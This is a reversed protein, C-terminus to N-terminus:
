AGVLGRMVGFDGIVTSSDARTNVTQNFYYNTNTVRNQSGNNALPETLPNIAQRMAGAITPIQGLLGSALGEGIWSGRRQMVRSPSGIQLDRDVQEIMAMVLRNTAEIMEPISAGLGLTLGGLIDSVDLGAQNLSEILDLQKELFNLKQENQKLQLIDDQISRQEALAQNLREQAEAASLIQGEFNVTEEGSAILEKLTEVKQDLIEVNAQVIGGLRNGITLATRGAQYFIQQQMLRLDNASKHFGALFGSILGQIGKPGINGLFDFNVGARALSDIVRTFEATQDSAGLIQDRYQMFTDTLIRIALQARDDSVNMSELLRGLHKATRPMINELSVLGRQVHLLQDLVSQSINMHSLASGALNAAAAVDTLAVAMPPPSGPQLIPPLEFKKVLEALAKFFDTAKKIAAAVADMAKKFKPLVSEGLKNMIPSVNQGIVSAIADFAPKLIQALYNGVATLAPLLINKWIGALAQLVKNFVANVFQGIAIFLPLLSQQMFNWVATLAPLVYNTWTGALVQARTATVDIYGSIFSAFIPILTNSIFDSVAMIAPLLITAWFNSLNQIAIPININLWNWLDTLTPILTGVIWAGVQVMAPQLTNTWFESVAQIAIPINILLWDYIQQLVPQIVAWAAFTKGQIDGWNGAWAAGLLAAAAIILNIPTLISMLGAILASIIGGVLIGGLALGIGILGGTIEEFSLSTIFASIQSALSSVTSIIQDAISLVTAIQDPELGLQGLLSVAAGRIGFREFAGQIKDISFVVQDVVSLVSAIQSPELGLQGLISIAAGRFGFRGFAGQVKAVIRNVDEFRDIVFRIGQSLLPFMNSQLWNLANGLTNRIVGALIGAGGTAMGMLKSLKKFFLAGGEFGLMAALGGAGFKQFREFGSMITGVMQQGLGALDGGLVFDSLKGIIGAIAPTFADVFPRIFTRSGIVFVDNLTSQLGKVSTAMEKATGKFTNQSFRTVAEFLEDFIEPSKEAQANFEEISMGMEVGIVKGLDIGLRRLQRLDIETLKGVKKVQFLQDAAFGLEASTIGVAGALDLFAPVFEKTADVGLGAAIAYKTTLEVTETEFPSVVALKTVFDLLERTQGSAIRFASAQDLVQNYTQRTTTNYKTETTTLGAIERETDAMQLALQEHQRKARLVNLGNEGYALTLQRIKEQQEQYTAQQTALKATLEDHKFGLEDQSMIQKTVAQTVTETSQAYMVNSTLLAKLSVELQQASGVAELGTTFFSGIGEAIKGFLNAAVIGGAVTAVNGLAGGLGGLMGTIGGAAGGLGSLARSADHIASGSGTQKIIIEITNAM